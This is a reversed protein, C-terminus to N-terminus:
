IASFNGMAISFKLAIIGLHFVQLHSYNGLPLFHGFRAPARLFITTNDSAVKTAAVLVSMDSASTNLSLYKDKDKWQNAYM